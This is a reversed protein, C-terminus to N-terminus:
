RRARLNGIGTVISGVGSLLLYLGACYAMSLASAFPNLLLVFGAILGVINIILSIWYTVKGAFRRIFGLNTLRTICHVMFWIPFLFSFAFVGMRINLVLLIGILINIIGGALATVPGFGTRRELRVYLAIDAIGSIIAALGYFAVIGGAATGPNRFTYVGLVVLLVGLILELWGYWSRKNTM